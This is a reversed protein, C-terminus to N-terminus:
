VYHACSGRRREGECYVGFYNETSSPGPKLMHMGRSGWMSALATVNAGHYATKFEAGRRGAPGSYLQLMRSGLMESRFALAVADSVAATACPTLRTM